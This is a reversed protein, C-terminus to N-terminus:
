FDYFFTCGCGLREYVCAEIKRPDISVGASCITVEVNSIFIEDSNKDTVIKIDFADNGISTEKIIESKLTAEANKIEAENIKSNYIEEYYEGEQSEYDLLSTLEDINFDGKVFSMVPFAICGVTCLGCLLRVYKVSAGRPVLSIIVGGVLAVAIVTIFYEKM